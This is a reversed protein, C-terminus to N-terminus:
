SFIQSERYEKKWWNQKAITSLGDQQLHSNDNELLIKGNGNEDFELLSVATNDCWEVENLGEVPLGKMRCLLNRIACGHSVAVVTKGANERVISTVAEYIRGYIHRMPEGNEPAFDWPSLNWHRADEPFLSPMDAWPKGEWVGGNIEILGKEMRLPLNLHNVAAATKQARLLPSSYIADYSVSLFREHLRELQKQGNESIDADTHGQFIRDVNGRAECHRIIYVRTKM